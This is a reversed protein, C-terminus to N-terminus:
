PMFGDVITQAASYSAADFRQLERMEGGFTATRYLDLIGQLMTGDYAVDASWTGDVNISMQTGDYAIGVQHLTNATWPRTVTTTGDSLQWNSGVVSLFGDLVNQAGGSSVELYWASTTDASNASDFTGVLEDTAATAGVTIIPGIGIANDNDAQIVNVAFPTGTNEVTITGGASVDLEIPSGPTATGYGTATATGATVIASASDGSNVFVVISVKGTGVTPTETGVVNSNHRLNTAPGWQKVQRPVEALPTGVAETVVNNLVTNGNTSAYCASAPDAFTPVYEGPNQNSQGSVNEAQAEFVYISFANGDTSNRFGSAIAATAANTFATSYKRWTEDVSIIAPGSSAGGVVLAINQTGDGPATRIWATTLNDGANNAFSQTVQASVSATFSLEIVDEGSPGAGAVTGVITGGFIASWGSSFDVSNVFMNRVTRGGTYVPSNAPNLRYFDEFDKAYIDATHTATLDGTGTLVGRMAYTLPDPTLAHFAPGTSEEAHTQQFTQSDQATQFESAVDLTLKYGVTTDGVTEVTCNATGQGAVLTATGGTVDSVSQNPQRYSQIQLHSTSHM